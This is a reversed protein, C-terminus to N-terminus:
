TVTRFEPVAALMAPRPRCDHARYGAKMSTHAASGTQGADKQTIM